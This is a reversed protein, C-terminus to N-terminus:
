EGTGESAIRSRPQDPFLPVDLSAVPERLAGDSSSPGSVSPRRHKIGGSNGKVKALTFTWDDWNEQGYTEIQWRLYKIASWILSRTPAGTKSTTAWPKGSARLWRQKKLVDHIKSIPWGDKYYREYMWRIDSREKEHPYYEWALRKRGFATIEQTPRRGWGFRPSGYWPLNNAKRYEVVDKVRESNLDSYLQATAATVHIMFKATAGVYDIAQGGQDCVYLDIENLSLWALLRPTEQMTRSIRDMKHVVISDGPQLHETLLRAAPRNIWAVKRGSTDTDCLFGGYRGNKGQMAAIRAEVYQRQVAPTNRQDRDSGRGCGWVIKEGNQRFGPVLGPPFECGEPPIYISALVGNTDAKVIPPCSANTVSINSGTEM